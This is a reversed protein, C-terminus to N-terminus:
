DEYDAQMRQGDAIGEDRASLVYDDVAALLQDILPERGNVLNYPGRGQTLEDRGIAGMLIDLLAKKLKNRPENTSASTGPGASELVKQYAQELLTQTKDKM